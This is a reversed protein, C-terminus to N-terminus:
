LGEQQGVPLASTKGRDQMQATAKMRYHYAAIKAQAEKYMDKDGRSLYEVMMRTYYDLAIPMAYSYNFGAKLTEFSEDERGEKAYLDALAMRAGLHLPDIRLAEKYMEEPEPADAALLEPPVLTQLKGLYFLAASSRPNLARVKFLQGMAQEYFEKKKEDSLGNATEQLIGLPINAALLWTRYNLGQDAGHALMLNSAFDALNGRVLLADRARNVFYESAMYGGFLYLVPIFPLAILFRRANMGTTPPFGATLTTDALVRRTAQFWVALLFGSGFLICLNYFNFSVHTQIVVAGLACFPALIYVRQADGKPLRALAKGTRAVAAILFAYFLVPGLIGLEAWYQLPDSHAHSVGIFEQPSRFEPYYLFFTGFGTGILWHAKVMAMAGDWINLRNNTVDAQTLMVTDAIRTAPTNWDVSSTAQALTVVAAIILAVMGLRIGAAKTIGGSFILLVALAIVLSFMAGRSGTAVLGAAIVAVFVLLGIIQTQTRVLLLGAIAPILAINFFGGLANPDALPHHAQGGFPNYNMVYQIVAWIGLGAFVAAMALAIQRMQKEDPHLVFVFFTLPLASFFCFATLSVLPQESWFISLFSWLWFAAAFALVFSKPIRWDSRAADSLMAWAWGALLFVAATFLGLQWENVFYLSCLFAGFWLLTSFLRSLTMRRSDM